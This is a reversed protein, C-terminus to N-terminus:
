RVSIAGIRGADFDGNGSEGYSKAAYITGVNHVLYKQRALSM